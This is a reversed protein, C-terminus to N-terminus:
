SAPVENGATIRLGTLFTELMAPYLGDPVSEPELLKQMAIGNAMAFIMTSLDGVAIPPEIGLEDARQGYIEGMRERLARYRTVLEGRFAEDRTAHAAFEFFLREWEPDDSIWRIFDSAGERAQQELPRDSRVVAEIRELNQAFREDLMALFLDEKSRFNAYFAGKTYGAREAIEDISAERMGRRTFVAAAADMLRRRTRAKMESRSLTAM